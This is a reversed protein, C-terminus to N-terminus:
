HRLWTRGEWKKKAWSQVDKALYYMGTGEFACFMMIGCIFGFGWILIVAQM